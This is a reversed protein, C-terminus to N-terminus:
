RNSFRRVGCSTVMRGQRISNSNSVINKTLRGEFTSCSPTPLFPLTPSHKTFCDNSRANPNSIFKCNLRFRAWSAKSTAASMMQWRCCSLGSEWCKHVERHHHGDTNSKEDAEGKRRQAFQLTRDSWVRVHGGFRLIFPFSPWPFKDFTTSCIFPWRQVTATLRFSRVEFVRRVTAYSRTSRTEIM